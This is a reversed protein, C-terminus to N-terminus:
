VEPLFPKLYKYLKNGEIMRQTVQNLLGAMSLAACTMRMSISKIFSAAATGEIKQVVSSCYGLEFQLHKGESARVYSLNRFPLM